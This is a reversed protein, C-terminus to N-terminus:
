ELPTKTLLMKRWGGIEKGIGDLEELLEGYHKSKIIKNEWAIELFLRLRDIKLIAQEFYGIKEQAKLYRATFLIEITELFLNDLKEGIGFREPKPFQKYLVLWHSYLTKIKLLV